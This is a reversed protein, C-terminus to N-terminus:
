YFTIAGTDLDIYSEESYYKKTVPDTLKEELYGRDYLEGLTVINSCEDEYYCQKAYYSFEKEVVLLLCRNHEEHIKYITPIIIMVALIAITLGIVKKNSMIGVM